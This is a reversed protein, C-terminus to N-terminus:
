MIIRYIHMERMVETQAALLARGVYKEFLESMTMENMKALDVALACINKETSVGWEESFYSLLNDFRLKNIFYYKELRERVETRKEEPYDVALDELYEELNNEDYRNKDLSIDVVDDLHFVSWEHNQITLKIPIAFVGHNIKSNDHPLINATKESPVRM